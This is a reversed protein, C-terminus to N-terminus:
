KAKNELYNIGTQEEIEKNLLKFYDPYQEVYHMTQVVYDIYKFLKKKKFGLERQMYDLSILMFTDFAQKTAEEKDQQRAKKYKETNMIEAIIKETNTKKLAKNTWNM